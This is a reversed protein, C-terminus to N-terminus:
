WADYGIETMRDGALDRFRDAQADTFANKWDGVIGKRNFEPKAEGPKRGTARKFEHKSVVKEIQERSLGLCFHDGIRMMEAVPDAKLDEYRTVVSREPDRHELWGTVWGISRELIEDMFYDLREELSMSKCQPWRANENIVVFHAWSVAVDRPDRIIIAHPRDLDALLALHERTPRSHSKTVTYGAPPPDLEDRTLEHDSWWKVSPPTWAAYGPVSAVMRHLWTSGSKPQGFILLHRHPYRYLRQNM